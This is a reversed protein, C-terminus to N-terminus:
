AGAGLRASARTLPQLVGRPIVEVAAHRVLAFEDDRISLATLLASEPLDPDPGYGLPFLLREGWYREAGALPPLSADGTATVLVLDGSRAALIGNFEGLTAMDAWVALAGPKCLLARASHIESSRKLAFQVRPLAEAEDPVTHVAAPTLVMALPVFGDEPIEFAPLSYGCLHWSSDLKEFFEAGEVPLLARLVQFGAEDWRVWARQEEIRVQVSAYTRLRGLLALASAPIRALSAHTLVGHM